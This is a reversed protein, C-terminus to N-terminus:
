PLIFKSIVKGNIPSEITITKGNIEMEQIGYSDPIEVKFQIPTSPETIIFKLTHDKINAEIKLKKTDILEYLEIHNHIDPIVLLSLSDFPEDSISQMMPGFPLITGAKIFVPIKDLSCAYDVWTRGSYHKLSWFDVWEGEPFYIKREDEETLIPAILLNRGFLYQDEINYVTPDKEYEL